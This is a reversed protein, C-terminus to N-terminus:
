GLLITEGSPAVVPGAVVQMVPQVPAVRTEALARDITAASMTLLSQRIPVDIALHGHRDMADLLVPLLAKLRKGCIRDAGEWALVLAQRVAVDYTRRGPRLAARSRPTGGRLMRAAHKRHHGTISVVEDLIRGRDRRTAEAYRGVLVTLIEDRTAMSVQRM